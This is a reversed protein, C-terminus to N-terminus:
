LPWVDLSAIAGLFPADGAVGHPWAGGVGLRAFTPVGVVWARQAVAVAVPVGDVAMEWTATANASGRTGSDHTVTINLLHWDKASVPASLTLDAYQEPNQRKFSRRLLVTLNGGQAFIVLEGSCHTPAVPEACRHPDGGWDLLAQPSPHASALYFEVSIAVDQGMLLGPNGATLGNWSSQLDLFLPPLARYGGSDNSPYSPYSVGDGVNHSRFDLVSHRIVGHSDVVDSVPPTHALNAANIFPVGTSPNIVKMSPRFSQPDFRLHLRNINCIAAIAWAQSPDIVVNSGATPLCGFSGERQILMKGSPFPECRQLVFPETSNEPECSDGRWLSHGGPVIDVTNNALSANRVNCLSIKPVVTLCHKATLGLM